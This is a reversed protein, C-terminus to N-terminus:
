PSIQSQYIAYPADAGGSSTNKVTVSVTRGIQPAFNYTVRVVEFSIPAVAIFDSSVDAEVSYGWVRGTPAHKWTKTTQAGPALTGSSQKQYIISAM